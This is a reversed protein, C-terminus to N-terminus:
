YLFFVWFEFTDFSTAKNDDNPIFVAVWNWIKSSSAQM